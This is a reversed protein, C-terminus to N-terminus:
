SKGERDILEEAKRKCSEFAADPTGGAAGIKDAPGLTMGAIDIVGVYKAADQNITVHVHKDRYIFKRVDAM